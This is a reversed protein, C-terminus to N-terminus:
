PIYCISVQEVDKSIILAEPTKERAARGSKAPYQMNPSTKIRIREPLRPLLPSSDSSASSNTGTGMKINFSASRKAQSGGVKKSKSPNPSKLRLLVLARAMESEAKHDYQDACFKKHMEDLLSKSSPLTKSGQNFNREKISLSNDIDGHEGDSLGNLRMMERMQPGYIQSWNASTAGHWTQSMKPDMFLSESSELEVALTNRITPKLADIKKNVDSKKETEPSSESSDSGTKRANKKSPNRRQLVPSLSNFMVQMEPSHDYELSKMVGENQVTDYPIKTLVSGVKNNKVEHKDTQSLSSGQIASNFKDLDANIDDTISPSKVQIKPINKLPDCSVAASTTKDLIAGNCSGKEVKTTMLNAKSSSATSEEVATFTENLTDESLKLYKGQTATDNNFYYKSGDEYSDSVDNKRFIQPFVTSGRIDNINSGSKRNLKSDLSSRLGNEKVGLAEASKRRSSKDIIQSFQLPNQSVYDASCNKGENLTRSIIIETTGVSPPPPTVPHKMKRSLNIREKRDLSEPIAPPDLEEKSHSNHIYNDERNM